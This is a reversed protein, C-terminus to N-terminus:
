PSEPLCNQAVQRIWVAEYVGVFHENAGSTVMVMAGLAEGPRAEIHIVTGELRAAWPKAGKRTREWESRLMVGDPPHGQEFFFVETRSEPALSEAGDLKLSLTTPEAVFLGTPDHFQLLPVPRLDTVFEVSDVDGRENESLRLYPWPEPTSTFCRRHRDTAEVACSARPGGDGMLLSYSGLKIETLVFVGRRRPVEVWVRKGEVQPELPFRKTMAFMSRGWLSFDGSLLPIIPSGVYVAELRGMRQEGLGDKPVTLRMTGCASFM